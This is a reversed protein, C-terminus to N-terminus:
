DAALEAKREGPVLLFVNSGACKNARANAERAVAMVEHRSEYDQSSITAAGIALRPLARQEVHGHRGTWVFGNRTRADAPLLPGLEARFKELASELRQRWDESQMLLVFRNGYIHGILDRRDDLAAYLVNGALRILDDGRQFGCADNFGKMPEIEALCVTFPLERELLREIHQNTPVPGPLLTLPNTYRAATLHTDTMVRLVDNASGMGLFRGEDTIIFGDALHQPTSEALAMAARALPQMRDFILPAVNMIDRATRTYVDDDPDAVTKIFRVHRRAILGIPREQEVVPIAYRTPDKAFLAIIERVPVGPAVTLVDRLFDEVTVLSAQSYKLTPLVPVSADSLLAVVHDALAAKPKEEPRGIFYGQGFAIGLEQVVRFDAENEIGEAIIRSGCSEAILQIAKLFQVKIPDDAIGKVFHKDAKVFEPKLESWLRLSSFGEGLDDIAVQFGMSRFIQLSDHVNKFSFTPQHETLEIIMQGAKLGLRLLNERARISDFGPATVVAPSLNIFLKGPLRLASFHTLVTNVCIVSLEALSDTDQAADFLDAPSQFISDRPGRILAEYGFLQRDHFGLIPQFVCSLARRELIERFLQARAARREAQMDSRDSGM